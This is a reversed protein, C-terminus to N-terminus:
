EWKCGPVNSPRFRVIPKCDFKGASPICKPPRRSLRHSSAPQEPNPGCLSGFVPNAVLFCPASPPVFNRLWVHGPRIAKNKLCRRNSNAPNESDDKRVSEILGLDAPRTSKPNRKTPRPVFGAQEHEAM